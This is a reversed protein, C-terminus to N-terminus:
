HYMGTLAELILRTWTNGSGPFSALAVLPRPVDLFTPISMSCQLEKLNSGVFIDLIKALKDSSKDKSFCQQPLMSLLKDDIPVDLYRLLLHKCSTNSSTDLLVNSENNRNNSIVPINDVTEMRPEDGYNHKNNEIPTILSGNTSINTGTSVSTESSMRVGITTGSTQVVTNSLSSPTDHVHSSDYHSPTEVEVPCTVCTDTFIMVGIALVVVISICALLYIHRTINSKERMGASLKM